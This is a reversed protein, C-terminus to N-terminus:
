SLEQNQSIRPADFADDLLDKASALLLGGFTLALALKGTALLLSPSDGGVLHLVVLVALTALTLFHKM